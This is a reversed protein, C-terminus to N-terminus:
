LEWSYKGRFKEFNPTAKGIRQNLQSADVGSLRNLERRLYHALYVLSMMPGEFNTLGWVVQWIADDTIPPQKECEVVTMSWPKSMTIEKREDLWLANRSQSRIKIGPL